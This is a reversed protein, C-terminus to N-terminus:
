TVIRKLFRTNPDNREVFTGELCVDKLLVANAAQRQPALALQSQRSRYVLDVDKDRVKPSRWQDFCVPLVLLDDRSDGIVARPM